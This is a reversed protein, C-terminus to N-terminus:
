NRIQPFLLNLAVGSIDPKRPVSLHFRTQANRPQRYLIKPLRHPCQEQIEKHFHSVM